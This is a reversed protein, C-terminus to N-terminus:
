AVDDFTEPWRGAAPGGTEGAGRRYEVSAVAFGRRALFGAFPSVHRRDHPTRWAGGHLVAVVPAPGGPGGTGRPAYFDILQDPHDGYAATADPDVPPHSFASEEEAAARAAAVDDTM